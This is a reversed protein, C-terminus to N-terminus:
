MHIYAKLQVRNKGDIFTSCFWNDGGDDRRYLNVKGGLISHTPM